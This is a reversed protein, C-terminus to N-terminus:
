RLTNQVSNLGVWREQEGGGGEIWMRGWGKELWILNRTFKLLSSSSMWSGLHTRSYIPGFSRWGKGAQSRSFDRFKKKRFNKTALSPNRHVLLTYKPSWVNGCMEMFLCFHVEAWGVEEGGWHTICFHPRLFISNTSLIEESASDTWSWLEDLAGFYHEWANASCFKDWHGVM